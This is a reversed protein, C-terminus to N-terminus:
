KKYHKRKMTKRKRTARRTKKRGGRPLATALRIPAFLGPAAAAAPAQPPASYSEAANVEARTYLRVGSAQLQQVNGPAVEIFQSVGAAGYERNAPTRARYMQQRNRKYKIRM